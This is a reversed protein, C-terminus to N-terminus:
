RTDGQATLARGEEFDYLTLRRVRFYTTWYDWLTQISARRANDKESQALFLNPIDIKGILYREKAVDFRRQAITDAKASVAVQKGLLNLRAAQYLVEQEFDHQQQEVSTATRKQDAVAADVASSGAGWRFIPISFGLSFQQQNLLNNYADPLVPARQNYGMSATMTANFSNDSKTQMVRREATLLQLGFNLADSRNQRAQGLALAPDIASGPIRSPPLLMIATGPGLGIAVRLNEESRHLGVNANELQTQANLFALESQLLDNEAIKGVNYRGTSIKYLTDNIALNLSANASNMLALYLEFFKNTIDLACDEMDEAFERSAMRYRLDRDEQDWRMTNIQFLPQRLMMTLPTSRYYQSKTEMLDIRNLGSSLSFEGGTLPIRQTLSLSVSSSAQSQPTFATTGDPLIIPNISRSYGPVEGSLSLQPYNASTFSHYGSEKSEFASRAMAGSPGEARARLICQQLTMSVTDVQAAATGSVGSLLITLLFPRLRSM